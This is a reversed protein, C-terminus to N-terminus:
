VARSLGVTDPVVDQGRRHGRLPWHVQGCHMKVVCKLQRDTESRKREINPFVGDSGPADSLM